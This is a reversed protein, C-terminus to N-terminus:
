LKKMVTKGKTTDVVLFSRLFTEYDVWGEDTAGYQLEEATALAEVLLEMQTQTLPREPRSLVNNVGQLVKLLDEAKVRGTGEEDLYQCGMKIALRHRFLLTTVDESISDEVNSSGKEVTDFAQVFELYNIDGNGSTDISKALEMLKATTLPEDEVVVSTIGPLQMIGNVFEHLQLIGDGSADLAGFLAIMKYSTEHALSTFGKKQRRVTLTSTGVSKRRGAAMSQLGAKEHLEHVRALTAEDKFLQNFPTQLILQGIQDLTSQIWKPAAAHSDTRGATYFTCFRGLFDKSKMKANGGQAQCGAFLQGALRDIQTATLGLDFMGLVQRAEKIDVTGDGDVDFLKFTQSLDMDLAVIAQYVKKVAQQLFTSYAESEATVVWRNLFKDMEVMGAPNVIEWAQAAETWPHSGEVIDSMLEVWHELSISTGIGADILHAWLAPKRELIGVIMKELEKEWRNNVAAKQSSKQQQVSLSSEEGSGLLQQLEELPAAYHEYIEYKPFHESALVLVAGYNGGNGCYNSASFVTVCRGEHQKAYGRGDEPVQHSRIMFRLRNQMCFKTTVDPGFKIGIGRENKFKGQHEAPDSWVLDSFIQDKVNTSLPHPATCDHFPITNIYDISLSKVRTLGGHVVFIEKEVVACLSLVKFTSVFRRYTALGYKVQVEDAFGGGSDVDLANMDENEHNGRNIIISDQDALFFAYLMLLIELGQHGRDVMDGNFLYRNQSTPTGLQHFIHLVDALQGHTDGVVILRGPKPTETYVVPMPHRKKYNNTFEQTLYNVYKVHLPASEGTALFHKMLGVAADPTVPHPIVFGSEEDAGLDVPTLTSSKVKRGRKEPEHEQLYSTVQKAVAAEEAFNAEDMQERRLARTFSAAARADMGKTAAGSCIWKIFERWDVSGSNDADAEAFLRKIEKASFNGLSKMLRAFEDQQIKGDGNLDFKQFASWLAEEQPGEPQM